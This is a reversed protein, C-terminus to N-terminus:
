QSGGDSAATDAEPYRRYYVYSAWGAVALLGSLFFVLVRAAWLRDPSVLFCNLVAWVSLIIAKPLARSRSSMVWWPRKRAISVRHGYERDTM